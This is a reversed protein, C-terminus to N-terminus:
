NLSEPARFEQIWNVLSDLSMPKALYYGQIYDCGQHRLFNQSEVDEVGEAIVCLGLEHAMSITSRVIIQDDTKTSLHQIFCKDIKLEHVPMMALKSLAS